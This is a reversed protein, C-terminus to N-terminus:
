IHNMSMNFNHLYRSQSFNWPTHINGRVSPNRSVWSHWSGVKLEYDSFSRWWVVVANVKQLFLGPTRGHGHVVRGNNQGHPLMCISFCLSLHGPCLPYKGMPSASAVELFSSQLTGKHERLPASSPLGLSCHGSDPRLNNESYVCPYAQLHNEFRRRGGGHECAYSSDMLFRKRVVSTSQLFELTLPFSLVNPFAAM